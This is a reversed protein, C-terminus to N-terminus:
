KQGSQDSSMCYQMNIDYFSLMDSDITFSVQQTQSPELSIRKFGKLEKVPRTVSSVKDTIYLQVIEDGRVKGTNTVDVSVVTKEEKKMTASSLKLNDYKFTTYSLGYGFPYL